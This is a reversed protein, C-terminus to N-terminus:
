ATPAARNSFRAFASATCKLAHNWILEYANQPVPFPFGEACNKVGEGDAVLQCSTANKRTFDYTRQPFSSSRRTPYVDMRYDKYKAFMAKQGVSLQDAHQQYNAPTVSYLPKDAAYPDVHSQGIRYGAPPRTIGGEWAPITGKSNGAKEAGTPTLKGGLSAAKDASVSAQALGATLVAASALTALASAKSLKM